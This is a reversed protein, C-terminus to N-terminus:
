RDGILVRISRAQMQIKVHTIELGTFGPVALEPMRRLAREVAQCTQFNRLVGKRRVNEERWAGVSRSLSRSRVVEGVGGMVSSLWSEIAARIWRRYWCALWSSVVGIGSM